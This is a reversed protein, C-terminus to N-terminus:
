LLLTGAANNNTLIAAQCGFLSRCISELHEDRAGREGAELDFELNSYGEVIEGARQWLAPDIPSRGLNTHIVIGTANIVRRLTSSTARELITSVTQVARTEDYATRSLRLSDLHSVLANKVRERGFRSVPEAFGESSLLREVAPIGRLLASDGAAVRGKPM